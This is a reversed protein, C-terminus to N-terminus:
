VEGRKAKEVWEKIEDEVVKVARGQFPRLLFPVDLDMLIEGPRLQFDGKLTLGKASFSVKAHDESLWNAKPNYDAFRKAYADFASQTARRAVSPELDHKIVHKM